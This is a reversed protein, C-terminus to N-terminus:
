SEAMMFFPVFSSLSGHHVDGGVTGDVAAPRPRAVRELQQRVQDYTQDIADKQEDSCDACRWLSQRLHTDPSHTHSQTHATYTTTFRDYNFYLPALQLQGAVLFAKNIYRIRFSLLEM